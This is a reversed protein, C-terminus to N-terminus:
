ILNRLYLSRCSQYMPLTTSINLSPDFLRSVRDIARQSLMSEPQQISVEAQVILSAIRAGAM